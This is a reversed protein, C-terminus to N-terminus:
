QFCCEDGNSVELQAHSCFSGTQGLRQTSPQFGSTSPGPLISPPPLHIKSPLNLSPCTPLCTFYFSPMFNSEYKTLRARALYPVRLSFTAIAATSPSQNRVRRRSTEELLIRVRKIQKRKLPSICGVKVLTFILNLYSESSM